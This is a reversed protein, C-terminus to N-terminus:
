PVIEQANISFQLVNAIGCTQNNNNSNNENSANKSSSNLNGSNSDSDSSCSGWLRNQSPIWYEILKM